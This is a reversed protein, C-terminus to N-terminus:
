YKKDSISKTIELTGAYKGLFKESQVGLLSPVYGEGATHTADGDNVLGISDNRSM